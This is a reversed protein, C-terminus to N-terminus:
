LLGSDEGFEHSGRYHLTNTSFYNLVKFFKPTAAGFIIMDDAYLLNSPSCSSANYRMASFSGDQVLRSLSRSLFDEALCFLLPSLPDGQRVGRLCALYTTPKGNIFM